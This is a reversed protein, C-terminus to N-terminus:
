FCDIFIIRMKNLKDPAEPLLVETLILDESCKILKFTIRIDCVPLQFSQPKSM